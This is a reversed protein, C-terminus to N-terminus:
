VLVMLLFIRKMHGRGNPNFSKLHLHDATVGQTVPHDPRYNYCDNFCIPMSCKPALSRRRVQAFEAPLVAPIQLLNFEEEAM